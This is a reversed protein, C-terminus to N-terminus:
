FIQDCSLATAWQGAVNRAMEAATEALHSRPEALYSATFALPEPTFGADFEEIEGKALLDGAIARPYPGVAIGAAIMRLSASLSASSFVRMEPGVLRSLESTLERYPRTMRSYSIVPIRRLDTEPNLTSKYWHLDFRPLDVNAVTFESVPGMLFALDIGRALLEERLRGSIDVTLDINVQPYAASFATLFATLWSQAITESAGIRFLGKAESPDAVRQRIEEEVFLMQEAYTLLLAGQKTLVLAGPGREFLSVRLESELGAIRASIAPQSLNLRASARRFGGLRAVWLFTKLQDFTM